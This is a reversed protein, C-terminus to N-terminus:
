QVFEALTYGENVELIHRSVVRHGLYALTYQVHLIHGGEHLLMTYPCNDFMIM